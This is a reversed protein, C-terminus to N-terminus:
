LNLLKKWQIPVILMMLSLIKMNRMGSGTKLAGYGRNKNHSVIKIKNFIPVSKKENILSSTNDTSGDNVIIIEFENSRLIEILCKLSLVSQTRNM